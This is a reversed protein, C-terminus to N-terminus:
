SAGEEEALIAALELAMIRATFKQSQELEAFPCDVHGYFDRYFRLAPYTSHVRSPAVGLYICCCTFACRFKAGRTEIYEGPDESLQTQARRLHRAITNRKTKM